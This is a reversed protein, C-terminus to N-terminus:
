WCCGWWLWPRSARPARCRGLPTSRDHFGAAASMRPLLRFRNYAAIAVAFAAVGIKVLLLQGYGDTLLADWSGVIRWALFAGSLM